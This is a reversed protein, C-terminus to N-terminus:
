DYPDGEYNPQWLSSSNMVSAPYTPPNTVSIPTQGFGTKCLNGLCSSLPYSALMNTPLLLPARPPQSFNFMYWLPKDNGDRLTLNGLRFNYEITSLFSSFDEQVGFPRGYFIGQKVYPSIVILPVRFGYGQSDVQNPVVHDAFGGFDDWTLFIATSNWLTTNESIKNIINTVYLQGRPLSNFKGPHDSVSVNPTIWAVEPLNGTNLDNYLDSADQIRHCTSPSLQVDPFDPLVNWAGTVSGYESSMNQCQASDNWLLSYYKWDVGSKNLESVITPFTLNYEPKCCLGGDQAAVAFLHQPYSSSLVSSFFNADLAYYSAYDWYNPIVSGTFYSMSFNARTAKGGSLEQAYVFGNETGNNYAIHSQVWSHALGEAQITSNMKDGDWPCVQGESWNKLNVPDCFSMNLAYRAKLGPFAGFFHDFAQNEQIIIVIHKIPTRAKPLSLSQSIDRLAPFGNYVYANSLIIYLSSTLL